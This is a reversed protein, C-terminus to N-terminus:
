EAQRVGEALAKQKDKFIQASDAGSRFAEEANKDFLKLSQNLSTLKGQADQIAKGLGTADGQIDVTIGKIKANKRLAM